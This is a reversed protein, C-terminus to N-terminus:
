FDVLFTLPIIKNPPLFQLFPPGNQALNQHRDCQYLVFLKVSTLPTGPEKATLDVPQSELSSPLFHIVNWWVTFALQTLLSYEVQLFFAELHPQTQCWFYMPAPVQCMVPFMLHSKTRWHFIIKEKIGHSAQDNIDQSPPQPILSFWSPVFRLLSCLSINRNLSFFSCALHKKLTKDLDRGPRNM